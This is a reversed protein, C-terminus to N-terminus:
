IDLLSKIALSISEAKPGADSISRSASLLIRNAYPKLSSISDTTAGQRGIGPALFLSHPLRQLSFELDSVVTAGVVAGVTHNNNKDCWEAIDDLVNHWMPPDGHMQISTGEPNSSRAVVFVYSGSDAARSLMPQLSNFGLYPNATIANVPFAASEGLWAQAYADITSGIDGRKADAVVLFGQERAESIISALARFGDPGLREFYAVQPKVVKVLGHAASLITKGFKLAGAASNDFGWAELQEWSPDIGVCLNIEESCNRKFENYFNM